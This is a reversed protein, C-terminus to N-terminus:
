SSKPAPPASVPPQANPVVNHIPKISKLYAYVASIEDDTMQGIDQWPMPPLMRRGEALGGLKGERLSRTFQELSWAGIGTSDPTLNRAYSIGWPGVWATLTNTVALGKSEVMKRDIDPAPMASIHGSLALSEDPVMGQDTLKKPTHCDNCGGIIVLHQGYAIETEYSGYKTEPTYAEEGESSCSFSVICMSFFAIGLITKTNM